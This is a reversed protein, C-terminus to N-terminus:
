YHSKADPRGIKHSLSGDAHNTLMFTLAVRNNVGTIEATTSRRGVLSIITSLCRMGTKTYTESYPM